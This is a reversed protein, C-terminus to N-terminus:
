EELAIRLEVQPLPQLRRAMVRGSARNSLDVQWGSASAQEGRLWGFLSGLPIDAGTVEQLMTNLSDFNKSDSGAQLTATGPMWVLKAAVSGLPTLLTLEGQHPSGALEFGGSFFRAPQVVAAGDDPNGVRVSIRGRWNTNQSDNLVIAGTKTSCGAIYIPTFLFLAQAVWTRRNM